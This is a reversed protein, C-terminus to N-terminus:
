RKRKLYDELTAEGSAPKPLIPKAPSNDEAPVLLKAGLIYELKKAKEPLPKVRGDEFSKIESEHVPVREALERRTWGKAERARTIRQGCDEAPVLEVPKARVFAPRGSQAPAYLDVNKGYGVCRACVTVRAGEILATGVSENRGCVSCEDM